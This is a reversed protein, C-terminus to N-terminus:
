EEYPLKAYDKVTAEDAERPLPGRLTPAPRIRAVVVENDEVLVKRGTPEETLQFFRERGDKDTLKYYDSEGIRQYQKLREPNDVQIKIGKPDPAEVPRILHTDGSAALVRYDVSNVRVTDGPKIAQGGPTEIVQVMFDKPRVGHEEARTAPRESRGVGSEAPSP